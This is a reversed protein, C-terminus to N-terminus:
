FESCERESSTAKWFGPESTQFNFGEWVQGWFVLWSELMPSEGFPRFLGALGPRAACAVGGVAAGPEGCVGVPRAALAPGNSASTHSGLRQQVPVITSVLMGMLVAL